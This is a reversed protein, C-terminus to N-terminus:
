TRSDEEPHYDIVASGLNPEAAEAAGGLGENYLQHLDIDTASDTVQHTDDLKEHRLGPAVDDVLITPESFPTDYDESLPQILSEGGEVEDDNTNNDPTYENDM